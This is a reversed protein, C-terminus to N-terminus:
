SSGRLATERCFRTNPGQGCGHCPTRDVIHWDGRADGKYSKSRDAWLHVQHRVPLRANTVPCIGHGQDAEQATDGCLGVCCPSSPMDTLPLLGTLNYLPNQIRAEYDKASLVCYLPCPKAGPHSRLMARSTFMREFVTVSERLCTSTICLPPVSATQATLWRLTGTGKGLLVSVAPNARLNALTTLKFSTTVRTGVNKVSVPLANTCASPLFM